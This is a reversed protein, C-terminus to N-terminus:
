RRRRRSKSVYWIIAGIAGAGLILLWPSPSSAPSLAKSAEYLAPPPNSVGYRVLAERTGPGYFGDPDLGAATQFEAVLHHDYELCASRPVGAGGSWSCGEWRGDVLVCCTSYINRSVQPALTRARAADM